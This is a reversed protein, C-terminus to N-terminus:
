EILTREAYPLNGSPFRRGVSTVAKLKFFDLSETLVIFGM